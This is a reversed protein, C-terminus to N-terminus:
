QVRLSNLRKAYMYALEYFSIISQLLLPSDYLCVPTWFHLILENQIICVIKILILCILFNDTLFFARLAGSIM